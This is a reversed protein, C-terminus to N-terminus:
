CRGCSWRPSAPLATNDAYPVYNTSNWNGAGYGFLSSNRAILDAEAALTTITRCPTVQQTAAWRGLDRAVQTLSNQAWFILGFQIIGGILLMLVPFTIAFEVLSQARQASRDASRAPPLTVMFM